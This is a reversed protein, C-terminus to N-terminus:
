WSATGEDLSGHAAPYDTCEVTYTDGDSDITYTGDGTPCRMLSANGMVDDLDAVVATYQGNQARYVAEGTALSHLNQRCSATEADERISTFKPVAIAALIGIIVVVIMLEILTFGRM